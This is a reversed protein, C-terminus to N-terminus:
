NLQKDELFAKVDEYVTQRALENLIEHRLGAYLKGGVNRYGLKSFFEKAEEWDFPSGIVPDKEGALFLVPIDPSRVEYGKKKYTLKMLKFLNEFGNCTFTFNSKPNALYEDINKRNKSLWAKEGEGPFKKDGKGTSLYALLKSRHREGKFLRICKELIVAIGALPNKAPLGCVILRDITRDHRRMFCRVVMSGMSHGFLTFPLDPYQTKVYAVVDAVDEVVAKAEFDGFWGYDDPSLATDGHGRQDYCVAVYGYTSLFKMFDAYREKYECMGHVILVVGKRKNEPDYICGQLKLGDFASTVTFNKQIM